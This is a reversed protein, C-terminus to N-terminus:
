GASAVAMEPAAVIAEHYITPYDRNLNAALREAEQKNLLKTGTGSRGSTRSKWHIVYIKM